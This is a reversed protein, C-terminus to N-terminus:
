VCSVRKGIHHYCNQPNPIDRRGEDASKSFYVEELMYRNVGRGEKGAM